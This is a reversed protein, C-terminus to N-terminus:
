IILCGDVCVCRWRSVCVWGFFSLRALSFLAWTNLELVFIDSRLVCVSFAFGAGFSFPILSVSTFYSKPTSEDNWSASASPMFTTSSSSGVWYTCQVLALRVSVCLGISITACSTKIKSFKTCRLTHRQLTDEMRHFSPSRSFSSSSTSHKTLAHQLVCGCM